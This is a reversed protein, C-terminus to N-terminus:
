KEPVLRQKGDTISLIKYEGTEIDVELEVELEYLRYHLARQAAESLEEEWDELEETGYHGLYDKVRITSM